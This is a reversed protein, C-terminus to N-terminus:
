LVVERNENPNCWTKQFANNNIQGHGARERVLHQIAKVEFNTLIIIYHSNQFDLLTSCHRPQLAQPDQYVAVGTKASTDYLVRLTILHEHCSIIPIREELVSNRQSMQSTEHIGKRNGKMKWNQEIIVVKTFDVHQFGASRNM